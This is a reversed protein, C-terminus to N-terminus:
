LLGLDRLNHVLLFDDVQKSNNRCLASRRRKERLSTYPVGLCQKPREEKALELSDMLLKWNAQAQSLVPEASSEINENNGNVDHNTKVETVGDIQIVPMSISLRGFSKRREQTSPAAGVKSLQEAEEFGAFNVQGRSLPRTESEPLRLSLKNSFTSVDMAENANLSSSKDAMDSHHRQMRRARPSKRLKRPLRSEDGSSKIPTRGQLGASNERTSEGAGQESSITVRPRDTGNPPQVKDAVSNGVVQLGGRDQGPFQVATNLCSSRRGQSSAVFGSGRRKEGVLVNGFSRGPPRVSTEDSKRTAPLLRPQNERHNSTECGPIPPLVSFKSFSPPGLIHNGHGDGPMALATEQARIRGTDTQKSATSPLPVECNLKSYSIKSLPRNGPLPPLHTSNM